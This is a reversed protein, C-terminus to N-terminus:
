QAVRQLEVEVRRNRAQGDPTTNPAIPEDEGNGHAAVSRSDHIKGRIVAAVAEARAQSLAHNDAFRLGRPRQSDTFGEVRVDGREAAIAEGIANFLPAWAPAIEESGSRFAQVGGLTTIRISPGDAVEVWGRRIQEALFTRIHRYESSAVPAVVGQGALKLDRGAPILANLADHAPRGTFSLTARLAIYSVLLVALAAMAAMALPAWLGVKAAPADAGRWHPSLEIQSLRRPAELAQYCSQMTALHAASGDGRVRFRGQFGAAMCAHYLELLDQYEAPRAIMEDLLRWFRDGGIAEQFFRAGLSRQAWPAVEAEPLPLNLAIDDATVALAYTARRLQEASLGAVGSQLATIDALCRRHLDPLAIRARGARVSALLSLLPRVQALLPNRVAAATRPPPIDDAPPPPAQMPVPPPEIAAAPAGAARLQQLPSPQFLTRGQKPGESDSM